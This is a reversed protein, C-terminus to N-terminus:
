DQEFFGSQDLADIFACDFDGNSNRYKLLYNKIDNVREAYGKKTREIKEWGSQNKTCDRHATLYKWDGDKDDKQWYIWDDTQPSIIKNCNVCIMRGVSSHCDIKAFEYTHGYGKGM